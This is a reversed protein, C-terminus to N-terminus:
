ADEVVRNKAAKKVGAGTSRRAPSGTTQKARSIMMRVADPKKGLLKSIAGYSLGSNALLLETRVHGPRDLGLQERGDVLLTLIALLLENTFESSTRSNEESM